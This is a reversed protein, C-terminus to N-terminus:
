IKTATKRLQTPTKGTHAHLVKRFYSTSSFGLRDSIDQISADSTTLLHIADRVLLEQRVKNPTTGERQFAAYLTSESVGCHRAVEAMRCDSHRQMYEAAQEVLQVASAKRSQEMSGLVSGLVAFLAGLAASDPRGELPIQRVADALSHPLKQLVFSSKQAEPFFQFGCSRLLISDEDFWYSQYPLDKPIFFPEGPGAEITVNDSVIRCRGKELMGIYHYPSGKRADTYHYHRYRYETFYFSKYFTTHNM